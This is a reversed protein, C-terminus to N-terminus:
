NLNQLCLQFEVRASLNMVQRELQLRSVVDGIIFNSMSASDWLARIVYRNGLDDHVQVLATTLLVKERM